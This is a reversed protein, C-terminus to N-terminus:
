KIKTSFGIAGLMEAKEPQTQASKRWWRVAWNRLNGGEGKRPFRGHKDFFVRAREYCNMWLKESHEEVTEYVYGITKLLAVKDPHKDASSNWWVRVWSRLRKNERMTPFHGHEDYFAKAENFNKMWMNDHLEKGSRYKFGIDMLMQAKDNNQGPNQLYTNRWWHAAWQYLRTNDKQRPFNGNREVYSVVERYRSMWHEENYLKTKNEKATM